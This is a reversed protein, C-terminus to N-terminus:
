KEMGRTTWKEGIQQQHTTGTSLGNGQKQFLAANVAEVPYGNAIQEAYEAETQQCHQQIREVIDVQHCRMLHEPSEITTPSSCMPCSSTQWNKWKVM